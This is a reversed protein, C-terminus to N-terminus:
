RKSMKTHNIFLCIIFCIGFDFKGNWPMPRMEGELIFDIIWFVIKTELKERVAADGEVSGSVIYQFNSRLLWRQSVTLSRKKM